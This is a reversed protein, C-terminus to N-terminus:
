AAPRKTSEQWFRRTIQARRNKSPDLEWTKSIRSLLADVGDLSIGLIAAIAKDTEGDAVMRAGRWQHPTLGDIKM